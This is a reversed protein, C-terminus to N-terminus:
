GFYYPMAALTAKEIETSHEPFRTLLHNFASTAYEAHRATSNAVTLLREFKGTNKEREFTEINLTQEKDRTLNNRWAYVIDRSLDANDIASLPGNYDTVSKEMFDDRNKIIAERTERKKKAELWERHYQAQARESAEADLKKKLEAAATKEKFEIADQEKQAQKDRAIEFKYKTGSGSAPKNPGSQNAKASRDAADRMRKNEAADDRLKKGYDYTKQQETKSPPQAKVSLSGM